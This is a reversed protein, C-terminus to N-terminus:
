PRIITLSSAAVLSVVFSIGNSTLTLTRNGSTTTGLVTVTARTGVLYDGVLLDAVTAVGITGTPLGGNRNQLFWTNQPNSTPTFTM